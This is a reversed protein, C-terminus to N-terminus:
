KLFQRSNELQQKKECSAKEKGNLLASEDDDNKLPMKVEKFDTNVKRSEIGSFIIKLDYNREICIQHFKKVFEKNKIQKLEKNICLM